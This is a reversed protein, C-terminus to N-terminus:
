SVQGELVFFRVRKKIRGFGANEIILMHSYTRDGIPGIANGNDQSGQRCPCEDHRRSAGVIFPKSDLLPQPEVFQDLIQFDASFNAAVFRTKIHHAAFLAMQLGELTALIVLFTKLFRGRAKLLVAEILGFGVGQLLQRDIGVSEIRELPRCNCGVSVAVCGAGLLHKETRLM